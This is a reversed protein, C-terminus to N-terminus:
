LMGDKRLEKYVKEMEEYFGEGWTRIISDKLFRFVPLGKRKGLVRAPECIGWRHHNIATYEGVKSVRIPYLHCSLPKRFRVKGLEYSREIGCLAIGNKFWAYACEKGGILPTVKDGDSDTVWPGQRDIAKRGEESLQARVRPYIKELTEAEEDSLPAGSDGHVCCNGFCKELHCHFEEEFLEMSVLKDEIQIMVM